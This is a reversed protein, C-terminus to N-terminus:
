LRVKLLTVLSKCGRLILLILRFTNSLFIESAVLYIFEGPGSTSRWHTCIILMTIQMHLPLEKQFMTAFSNKRFTCILIVFVGDKM